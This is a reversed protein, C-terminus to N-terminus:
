LNNNEMKGAIVGINFYEEKVELFVDTVKEALKNDYENIKKLVEEIKYYTKDSLLNNEVLVEVFTYLEDQKDEM